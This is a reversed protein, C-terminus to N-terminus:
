DVCPRLVEQAKLSLYLAQLLDSWHGSEVAPLVLPYDLANAVAELATAHACTYRYKEYIGFNFGFDVTHRSFDFAILLFLGKWAPYLEQIVELSQSIRQIHNATCPPLRRTGFYEVGERSVRFCVRSPVKSM